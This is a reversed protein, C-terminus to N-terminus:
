KNDNRNIVINYQLYNDNNEKCVCVCLISNYITHTNTLTSQINILRWKELLNTSSREIIVLSQYYSILINYINTDYLLFFLVYLCKM